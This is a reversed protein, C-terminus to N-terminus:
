SVRINGPSVKYKPFYVAVLDKRYDYPRVRVYANDRAADSTTLTRSGGGAAEIVRYSDICMAVHTIRTSSGYFALAGKIPSGKHSRDPVKFYRYLADATQDGPPDFGVSALLEQVFGSCDMGEITDDGGWKYPLGVFSMAYQILLDM